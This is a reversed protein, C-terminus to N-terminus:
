LQLRLGAALVHSTSRARAEVSYGAFLDCTGDITKSVRLGALLADHGTRSSFTSFTASPAGALEADTRGSTEGFDHAWAVMAVPAWGTGGLLRDLDTDGGVLVRPTSFSGNQVALSLTSAGTETFASREVHDYHIEGFPVVIGDGYHASFDGSASWGDASGIATRTLAGIQIFRESDFHDFGASLEGDFRWGSDTVSGYLLFQGTKVRAQAANRTVIDATAYGGGIGLLMDQTRILDYGAVIGGASDRNGRANGDGGITTRQGISRAWLPSTDDPEDHMPSTAGLVLRHLSAAAVLADGHVAGAIQDFSPGLDGVPVGYIATLVVAQDGTLNVGPPGRLGDIGTGAADRNPTDTGGLPGLNAFSQPTVVLDISNAAYFVDFRTGPALGSAPETLNAYIGNVGGAASVVTFHQGLVPTFNNNASGSIGRLVPAITGGATYTSAAGSVLVRSYNGAGSGTGTGDIDLMLTSSASQLVSQTFTLTGPSYGPRLTGAIMAPADVTGTGRLLGGGAVILNHADLNGNVVLTGSQVTGGGFAIVNSGAPIVYQADPNEILVRRAMDNIGAIVMGTTNLDVLPPLAMTVAFVTNSAGSDSSSSTNPVTSAIGGFVYGLTVTDSTANAMVSDLDIIGNSYHAIGNALFFQATTGFLLTNGPNSSQSVLTPFEAAMLNQTFQGNHDIVITTITNTFPLEPDTTYTHTNPDLTAYSLGGFLTIYNGGTTQSFSGFHASSYINVAQKFTGAAAPDASHPVGDAGITVPVTWIGSTPTFVGGLAVLGESLAGTVSDRHLIGVLNDGTRRLLSEDGPNPSASLNQIALSAPTDVIDFSRVQDTYNGNASPDFDGNFNQGFVLMARGNVEALGGGTVRLSPDQITRFISTVSPATPDGKVWSILGNLDVSTLNNYTQSTNATRDFGYGGVVYLKSGVQVSEYSSASLADIMGIPLGSTDLSRSWSQKTVPDVIWIDHNQNAPPFSTASGQSFGHLGNTRGGLLVWDGAQQGSAFSQLTPMPTAGFDQVALSLNYPMPYNTVPLTIDPTQNDARATSWFSLVALGALLAERQVSIRPSM